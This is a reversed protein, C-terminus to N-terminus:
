YSDNDEIIDSERMGRIIALRNEIDNVKEKLADSQYELQNVLWQKADEFTNAVMSPNASVTNRPHRKGHLWFSSKTEKDAKM